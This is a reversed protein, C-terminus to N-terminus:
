NKQSVKIRKRRLQLTSFNQNFLSGSTSIKDRFLNSNRPSELLHTLSSFLLMLIVYSYSLISYFLISYSQISYSLISYSLISYSLIPCSPSPYYPLHTLVFSLFFSLLFTFFYAPFLVFIFSLIFLSDHM